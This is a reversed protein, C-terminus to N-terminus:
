GLVVHEVEKLLIGNGYVGMEPLAADAETPTGVHSDEIWVDGGVKRKSLAVDEPRPNTPCLFPWDGHGIAASSCYFTAL